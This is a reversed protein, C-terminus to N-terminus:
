PYGSAVISQHLRRPMGAPKRWSKQRRSADEASRRSSSSRISPGDRGEFVIRVKLGTRKVWEQLKVLEVHLRALEKEYEKNTLKEGAGAVKGSGKKGEVKM